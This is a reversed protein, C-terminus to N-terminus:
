STGGLLGPLLQRAAPLLNTADSVQDSPPPTVQVPTGFGWLEVTLDAQGVGSAPTGSADFSATLRRLRNSGDVWLQVPVTQSTYPQLESPANAAVKSLDITASYETTADGRVTQDTSVVNVPGAISKLWDMLWTADFGVPSGSAAAPASISVWPKGGTFSTLAPPVQVYVSGGTSEVETTGLSAPLTVTFSADGSALDAAGQASVSGGATTASVSIDATQAAQTAAATAFVAQAGTPATGHGGGGSLAAAAGVAAVLAAASALAGVVVARSHGRRAPPLTGPGPFPGPSEAAGPEGLPQAAAFATPAAAYPPYAAQAQRGAPVPNAPGLVARAWTVDDDTM